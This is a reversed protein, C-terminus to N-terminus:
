RALRPVVAALREYDSPENYRQASLRLLLRAPPEGAPRASRVPWPAVPVVFGEGLLAAMLEAALQDSPAAVPLPLSAMAGLMSDPAPPEVGLAEAIVDRGAIVLDHNAAMISPWGGPELGGVLDIADAMALYPSPDVTGPWDFELRFREIEGTDGRPDNAGHSVVLPRIAARRDERVWLVASGKPGCLWKHGNGTWYAPAMRLVDIPVMGVAHAGDVLTDVGHGELEAVIEDVPFILGTPSTVQSVLALRTRATVAAMVADIVAGPGDIPFPVHAIVIRAGWTQAALELANVTANYEHDTILLEDGPEFRLSRLVTSVGTTTNPVFALGDPEANLYAGIRERATALYRPLDFDLFQVPQAELRDRWARQAELVPAPCSGFTGHTLFTVSPDLPWVSGTRM